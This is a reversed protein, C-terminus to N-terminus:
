TLPKLELIKLISAGAETVSEIREARIHWSRAAATLESELRAGKPFLFVTEPGAFRHALACLRDLPALARASIVDQAAPPAEEIRCADITVALGMSRAAEGLFVAKRRDSEVLRLKLQPRMEAALAAIVLGPFGAGAGLDIWSRAAEPALRVLQASDAMHRAWLRPLTQPAVLNITRNWRELLAAFAQLREMTERSVDFARAFGEATLNAPIAANM